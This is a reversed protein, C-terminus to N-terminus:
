APNWPSRFFTEVGPRVASLLDLDAPVLLQHGGGQLIYGAAVSRQAAVEGVVGKERLATRAAPSLDGVRVLHYSGDGNWDQRVAYTRRWHAETAPLRQPPFLVGWWGGAPDNTRYLPAGDQDRDIIGGVFRFLVATDPLDARYVTRSVFAPAADAGADSLLTTIVAREHAPVSALDVDEPWDDAGPLDSRLAGREPTSLLAALDRCAELHERVPKEYRDKSMWRQLLETRPTSLVYCTPQHTAEELAAYHEAFMRLLRERLKPNRINAFAAAPVADRVPRFDTRPYSIWSSM